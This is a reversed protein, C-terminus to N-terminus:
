AFLRFLPGLIKRARRFNPRKIFQEPGPVHAPVSADVPPIECEYQELRERAAQDSTTDSARGCKSCFYPPHSSEAKGRLIEEQTYGHEIGFACDSPM